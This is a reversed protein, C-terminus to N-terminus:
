SAAHADGPAAARLSEVLDGVSLLEPLVEPEDPRQPDYVLYLPVGARGHRALEARIREDRRTWDAKFVRVGLRALESEVRPSRLVVRENVKCTICWEASFVVLVPDGAALAADIAPPAWPEWGAEAGRASGATAGAQPALRANVWDLGLLVAALVAIGAVTRMWGKGARQVAGFVFLGFAIGLLLGLLAVLGDVGAVGGTLWLLWLVTALLAFGLASRLQLMWTGPKPMFRAWGPVLTILAFPLALGAGIALFVAVIVAPSGAFAFGVATGLFPASCPTALVVALLGEFFSRRTGHASAGIRAARGVDV